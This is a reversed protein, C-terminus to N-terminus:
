KLNKNSLFQQYYNLSERGGIILPLELAEALTIWKAELHEKLGLHIFPYVYFRKRFMHFIFDVHDLRVFLKGVEELDIGEIELGVEEYVERIAARRPDENKELKGAPLGWTNGQAKQPHRRLLLIKDEFECYCGAVEVSPAFDHPPSTFISYNEMM